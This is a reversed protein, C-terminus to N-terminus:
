GTLGLERQLAVVLEQYRRDQEEALAQPTDERHDQTQLDQDTM